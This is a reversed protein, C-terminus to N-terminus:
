AAKKKKEKVSSKSTKNLTNEIILAMKKLDTKNRLKEKLRKTLEQIMLKDQMMQEQTYETPSTKKPHSISQSPGKYKPAGM